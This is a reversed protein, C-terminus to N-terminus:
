APASRPTLRAVVTDPEYVVDEYTFRMVRFGASTLAADKRRDSQFAAKTRHTEWGDTEVVLDHTPFYFDVELRPHDPADLIFNALPEPLGAQRVLSLFRAELESRTLKPEGRVARALAAKGRNGNARAIVDTIARHDYLRLREAQALARELRSEPVTAALDLLTRAVTTIPIREHNATDHADLSRSRHLRIGPIKRRTRPTTVDVRTQETRLLGWHAAGSLHSLVAGRGCALVAALHRGEVRLARHGLAYVGRHVVHLRGQRVWHDITAASAGSEVLQARSVVGWQRGALEAVVRSM